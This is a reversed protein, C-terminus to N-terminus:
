SHVFCILTMIYIYLKVQFFFSILLLLLLIFHFVILKQKQKLQNTEHNLHKTSSKLRSIMLGCYNNEISIFLIM